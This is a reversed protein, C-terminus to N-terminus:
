NKTKSFTFLNELIFVASLSFHIKDTKRDSAKIKNPKKIIKLFDGGAKEPQFFGTAPLGGASKIKGM